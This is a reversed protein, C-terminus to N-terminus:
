YSSQLVHVQMYLTARLVAEVTLLLESALWGEEGERRWTMKRSGLPMLTGFSIPEARLLDDESIPVALPLM